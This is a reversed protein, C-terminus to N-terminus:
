SWNVAQAQESSSRMLELASEAPEPKGFLYGQGEQCGLLRLLAVQERTEIGEANLRIDLSRALAGVASIIAASERSLPIEAIFSRDIKIKAIPFKRIYNLSSYGTGFDDLAFTVGMERLQHLAKRVLGSQQLLVSETIELELRSAPLGSRALADAITRALDGRVFQIPSVNVALTLPLPWAAATRCAEELVWAGLRQILGSAEAVPIFEAPSIFSGDARPWRLLAEFGTLHGDSLDVQPQYYIEFAREEFAEWLELELERREHLGSELGPEFFSITNGGNAKAAYLATDAQKLVILPDSETDAPMAIGFSIGIIQRHGLLDYPKGVAAILNEAFAVARAEATDGYCVVAYDDGGFRALLDNPALSRRSREAVAKLLRDGIDHGLTDNVNKFRDLDFCIVVCPEGTIRQRRLAADLKELFQNRNPLGTLTDFRALYAIREAAQRKETVDIFTLSAVFTDPLREGGRTLGGALRSPTVVYELMAAEGDRRRYELEDHRTDSQEGLRSAEIAGRVAETLKPPLFEAALQGVLDTRAELIEVATRSAARVLGTEDVVVVGAFNDAVVRNLITQTNRTQNHAILILIRRFDIERILTVLAFGCLTAQWAGTAPVLPWFRQVALAVVEVTLSAFALAALSYTWRVRRLFLLVLLSIAVIGALSVLDGTGALARDQTVSEAGLAQLLSGSISGYVPVRFFDRLETASAGVIVKKGAIRSRDVKGDIVDIVSLRGIRDARIGFDVAFDRNSAGAKGGLMEALSPLVEGSSQDAFRLHRVVGDPDASVNM